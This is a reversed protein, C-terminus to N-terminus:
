ARKKLEVFRPGVVKVIKDGIRKSGLMGVYEVRHGRKDTLNLVINVIGLPTEIHIKSVKKSPNVILTDFAMKCTM